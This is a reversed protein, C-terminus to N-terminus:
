KWFFFITVFVDIAHQLDPEKTLIFSFAVFHLTVIISLLRVIWRTVLGKPATGSLPSKRWLHWIVIGAGHYMGWLLYRLSIEHWLALVLMSSIIAMSPIRTLAAVPTYVYDRCWSSLSIHWRQWFDQINTAILPVNFNEMIRFGMILSFGIVVDTYGSFQFYLHGFYRFCDLYAALAPHMEELEILFEIFVHSILFNGLVAIKFYGYVIRELGASVYAKDFRRRELDRKFEPFRHIPGAMIAPLFFLYAIYDGFSHRPCNKKMSEFIYHIQRFSYYSLGLPIVLVSNDMGVNYESRMKYYILISSIGGIASIMLGTQNRGLRCVAYVISATVLLIALSVPSYVGLFFACVAAFYYKQAMGPICWSVAATALLWFFVPLSYFTM